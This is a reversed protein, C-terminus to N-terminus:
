AYVRYLQMACPNQPILGIVGGRIQRLRRIPIRYLDEGDYLCVGDVRANGPLLRLMSMGMVSKGSGSEGIVGSIRGAHFVTSLNRVAFVPGQSTEFTVTLNQIEIDSTM